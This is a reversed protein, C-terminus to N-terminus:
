AHTEINNAPSEAHLMLLKNWELLKIIRLYEPSVRVCTYVILRKWKNFCHYNIFLIKNVFIDKLTWKDIKTQFISLLEYILM